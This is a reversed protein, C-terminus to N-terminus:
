AISLFQIQMMERELLAFLLADRWQGKILEYERLYGEQRMCIKILVRMSAKNQPDCIAFIRHLNLQKFGFELLKSGLETAYGKGWFEKALCFGISAERKDPNTISIRCSGIVQKNAKLTVAFAFHQRLKKRRMKVEAQLFNKTDEETNPGFPLYRVVAPDSAYTHVAQWDSEAFERLILRETELPPCISSM